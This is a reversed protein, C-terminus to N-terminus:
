LIVRALCFDRESEDGAAISGDGIDFRRTIIHAKGGAGRGGPAVSMATIHVNDIIDIRATIDMMARM